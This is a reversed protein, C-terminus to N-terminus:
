KQPFVAALIPFQKIMDVLGGETKRHAYKEKLM